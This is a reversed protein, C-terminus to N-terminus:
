RQSETSVPTWVPAHSRPLPSNGLIIDAAKEAMMIVPGNLNGSIISPMISADVVRLNEVGIVKLSKPDVVTNVDDPDGMKCTCSPHYATDGKARVFSDIESDSQVHKGPLIEEGRFTDFAKQLFIERTLRIVNRFDKLDDETSLYNANISPADRPDSTKLKVQGVSQSRLTGAHAQYAHCTGPKQGHDNIVSPLFHYQVDPHQLGPRSRIFAGADLHTSAADGTSSLFWELGTKVMVHPFKWQHYYLTIPHTCKYQVYVELHDQLNEGVGPLHALSTVHVKKLHDANGVGSLMLLQPTNIAGASLVVDSHARVTYTKNDYQSTYKLGVAKNGEFTVKEVLVNSVVDINHRYLVPRLFATSTSSRKGGDITMDFYGFGEQQFGNCDDTFPYGAQLGAEVFASFLPNTTKGRSVHLFGDEGRYDNEGLEHTQSRRFYPLCDAYSWGEAGEREWRDYDYAHGRIYVMANHSSCGGWVKGRPWYMQRKNMQDQPQTYYCWNYKPDCLTYMLAAPMHFKWSKDEKGAELLLVKKNPDRSLRNALVCGASGAGVIVYDYDESVRTSSFRGFKSM